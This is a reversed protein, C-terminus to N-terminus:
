MQEGFAKEPSRLRHCPQPSASSKEEVAGWGFIWPASFSAAPPAGSPCTPQGM